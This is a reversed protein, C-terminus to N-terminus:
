SKKITEIKKSDKFIEVKSPEVMKNCRLCYFPELNINTTNRRIVIRTTKCKSCTLITKM